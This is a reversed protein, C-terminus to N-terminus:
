CLVTFWIDKFIFFFFANNSTVPHLPPRHGTAFISLRQAFWASGPLPKRGLCLIESHGRGGTQLFASTERAEWLWLVQARVIPVISDLVRHGTFSHPQCSQEQDGAQRPTLCKLKAQDMYVLLCSLSDAFPPVSGHPCRGGQSCPARGAHPQLLPVEVGWGVSM